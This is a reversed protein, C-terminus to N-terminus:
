ALKGCVTSTIASRRERDAKITTATMTTPAIAATPAYQSIPASCFGTALGVIKDVGGSGVGTAGTVGV